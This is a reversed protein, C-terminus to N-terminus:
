LFLMLFLLRPKSSARLLNANQLCWTRHARNALLQEVVRTPLFPVSLGKGAAELEIHLQDSQSIM